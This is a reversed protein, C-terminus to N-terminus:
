MNPILRCRNHGATIYCEYWNDSVYDHVVGHITFFNSNHSAVTCSGDNDIFWHAWENWISKKTESCRGYVDTVSRIIMNPNVGAEKTNLEFHKGNLIINEYKM